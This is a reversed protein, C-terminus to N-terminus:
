DKFGLATCRKQAFVVPDWFLNVECPQSTDALPLCLLGKVARILMKFAEKLSWFSRLQNRCWSCGIHPVAISNQIGSKERECVCFSHFTSFFATINDNFLLLGALEQLAENQVPAECSAAANYFWQTTVHHVASVFPFIYYFHLFLPFRGNRCFFGIAAWLNSANLSTAATQM